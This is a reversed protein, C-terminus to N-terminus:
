QNTPSIKALHGDQGRWHSIFDPVRSGTTSRCTVSTWEHGDETVNMQHLCVAPDQVALKPSLEKPEGPGVAPCSM